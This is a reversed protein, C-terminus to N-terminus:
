LCIDINFSCEIQRKCIREIEVQRFSSQRTFIVSTGKVVAVYFQVHIHISRSVDQKCANSGNRCSFFQPDSWISLM